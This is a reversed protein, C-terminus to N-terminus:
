WYRRFYKRNILYKMNVMDSNHEYILADIKAAAEIKESENQVIHLIIIGTEITQAAGIAYKLANRTVESFDLPVLIRYEM